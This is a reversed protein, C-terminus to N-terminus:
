NLPLKGTMGGCGGFSSHQWFPMVSLSSFTQHMLTCLTFISGPCCEAFNINTISPQHDPLCYLSV